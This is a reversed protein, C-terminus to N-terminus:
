LVVAIARFFPAALGAEGEILREEEAPVFRSTLMRWTPEEALVIRTQWSETEGAQLEWVGGKRELAYPYSRAGVIRLAIVSGEPAECSRYQHPLVRLLTDLVPEVFLPQNLPKADVALRIQQQHHWRESLERAVDFWVRSEEEGAWSVPFRAAAWPDLSRLHDALQAEVLQLLDCLLEPSLRRSSEIWQSNLRNLWTALDSAQQSTVRDSPETGDREFSLRRCATDLLHAAIDKVDWGSCVTPRRWDAPPLSRLLGLLHHALPEFLDAVLTPQLPRSM